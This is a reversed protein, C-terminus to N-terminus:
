ALGSLWDCGEQMVDTLTACGDRVLAHHLIVCWMMIVCGFGGPGLQTAACHQRPFEAVRALEYIRSSSPISCQIRYANGDGRRM